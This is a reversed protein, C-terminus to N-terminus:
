GIQKRRFCEPAHDNILGTAQMLAYMTTPGVFKFGLDKLAQSLAVSEVSTARSVFTNSPKPRFDWVFKSLGGPISKALRANDITAEIKLRNRIISEDTMLKKVETKTMRSVKEIEFNKFATRFGERRKLITIWSLGAQFAELSVREFMADDGFVPLGWEADHYDIYLADQGPWSCRIVGDPYKATLSQSM